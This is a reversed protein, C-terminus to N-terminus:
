ACPPAAGAIPIARAVLSETRRLHPPKPDFSASVDLDIVCRGGEARLRIKGSAARAQADPPAIQAAECDATWRATVHEVKWPPTVDVSLGPTSTGQVLTLALCLKRQPDSKFVIRRELGTPLLRAWYRVTGADAANAM